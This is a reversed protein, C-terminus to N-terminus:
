KMIEQLYDYRSTLRDFLINGFISTVLIEINITVIFIETIEFIMFEFPVRIM